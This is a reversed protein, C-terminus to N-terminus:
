PEVAVRVQQVWEGNGRRVEIWMPGTRSPELIFDYTEGVTVRQRLAPRTSQQSVPLDAGDKAVLRWPLPENASILSVNLGGFNTTINILRVRNPVGAKFTLTANRAGNV